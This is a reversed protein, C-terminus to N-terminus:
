ANLWARISNVVGLSNHGGTPVQFWRGDQLKLFVAGAETKASVIDTKAVSKTRLLEVVLLANDALEVRSIALDVVGAVFFLSLLLLGITLWSFGQQLGIVAAGAVSILEGAALIVYLWRAPRIVRRAGRGSTRKTEQPGDM